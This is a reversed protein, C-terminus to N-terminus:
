ELIFIIWIVTGVLELAPSLNGTLEVVLLTLWVFGLVLMPMELWDELRAVLTKREEAIRERAIEKENEMEVIKVSFFIVAQAPSCFVSNIFAGASAFDTLFSASTPRLCHIRCSLRSRNVRQQVILSFDLM